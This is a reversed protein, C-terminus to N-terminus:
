ARWKAFVPRFFARGFKPLGLNALAETAGDDCGAFQNEKMPEGVLFRDLAEVGNVALSQPFFVVGRIEPVRDPRFVIPRTGSGGDGAIAHEGKARFSHEM